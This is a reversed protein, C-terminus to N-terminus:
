LKKTRDKNGNYCLKTKNQTMENLAHGFHNSKCFMQRKGLSNLLFDSRYNVSKDVSLRQLVAGEGCVCVKKQKKKRFFLISM